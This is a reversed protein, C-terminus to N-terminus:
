TSASLHLLLLAAVIVAAVKGLRNILRVLMIDVSRNIRQLRWSLLDTMADGLRMLLWTVAIVTLTIAVGGLM